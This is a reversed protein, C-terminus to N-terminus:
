TRRGGRRGRLWSEFVALALVVVVVTGTGTEDFSVAFLGAILTVLAAIMAGGLPRDGAVAADPSAEGVGPSSSPDTSARAIAEDPVPAVAAIRQRERSRLREFVGLRRAVRRSWVDARGAVARMANSCIGFASPAFIAITQEDLRENAWHHKYDADGFGFDVSGIEGEARLADIKRALLVKGVHDAAFDPDYGTSEAYYVDGHRSGIWFASPRADCYLVFCRLTGREMQRRFRCRSTADAVFGVGLARQYTRAAITEVDAIMREFDAVDRFIEFRLKDGYKRALRKTYYRALGRTHGSIALPDDARDPLRLVWRVNTTPCGDRCLRPPVRHALALLPSALPLQHLLAVDAEGRRLSDVLARVLLAANAESLDGVAAGREVTLCRAYPQWLRRYGLKLPLRIRELRAALMAVARDGRLALMVHPRLFGPAREATARYLELDS